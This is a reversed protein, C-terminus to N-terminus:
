VVNGQGVKNKTPTQTKEREENRRLTKNKCNEKKKQYFFILKIWCTRCCNKYQPYGLQQKQQEQQQQEICSNATLNFYKFCFTKCKPFHLIHTYAHKNIYLM